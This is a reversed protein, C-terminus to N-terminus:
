FYQPPAKQLFTCTIGAAVVINELDIGTRFIWESCTTYMQRHM